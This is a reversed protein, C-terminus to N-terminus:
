KRENTRMMMKHRMEKVLLFSLERFAPAKAQRLRSHNVTKLVESQAQCM